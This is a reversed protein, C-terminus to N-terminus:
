DEFLIVCATRTRDPDENRFELVRVRNSAPLSARLQLQRARANNINAQRLDTGFSETRAPDVAFVTQLSGATELQSSELVEVIVRPLKRVTADEASDTNHILNM